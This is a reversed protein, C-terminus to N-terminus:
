NPFYEQGEGKHPPHIMTLLLSRHAPHPYWFSFSGGVRAQAGSRGEM